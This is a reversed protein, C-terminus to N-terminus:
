TSSALSASIRTGQYTVTGSFLVQGDFTIGEFTGSGSITTGSVALRNTPLHLKLYGVPNGQPDLLFKVVQFAFTHDGTGAWAGYGPSARDQAVQDNADSETLGGGAAFTFLSHTTPFDPSEVTTLWSGEVSLGDNPNAKAAIASFAGLVVLCIAVACLAAAGTVVSRRRMRLHIM